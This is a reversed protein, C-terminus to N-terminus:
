SDGGVTFPTANNAEFRAVDRASRHRIRRAQRPSVHGPGRGGLIRAIIFLAVVVLMLFAAAAFGRAKMTNQPSQVFEFAALPLAVMPGHVPNSNTVTTYGALLLIPATEGIGRAMGLIIATALGSRATPLVIHWVTRWQPAGLAASAERLNGPVLRLVVDSARIIIPLMMVSIGLAAAFGSFEKHLALIWTAYIFLGAVISPLATMADVITRVARSLRGGVENIYVAGALGLPVTITLAIAMMWLTGILAHKIGGKTVPALPSTGKMDRTFFNIHGLASHGKWITYFVVFGLATFMLAAATYLVVTVVKDIVAPWDDNLSVLVTYAAIFMVYAVLFFGILGTFPALRGFLLLALCSASIGAGMLNLFDPRSFGGLKLRQQPPVGARRTPVVTDRLSIGLESSGANVQDPVGAPPLVTSM